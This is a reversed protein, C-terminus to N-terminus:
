CFSDEFGDFVFCFLVGLFVGFPEFGEVHEDFFAAEIWFVFFINNIKVTILQVGLLSIVTELVVYFEFLVGLINDEVGSSWASKCCDVIGVDEWQGFVANWDKDGVGVEFFDDEM